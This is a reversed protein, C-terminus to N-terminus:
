SLQGLLRVLDQQRGVGTKRFVSKLHTRVTGGTIGLCAAVSELSHGAALGAAIKAETGTLGYLAKLACADPALRRAPDYAVAPVRPRFGSLDAEGPELPAVFLALPLRGSAREVRLWGGSGAADPAAALAVLRDLNPRQAVRPCALIGHESMLGDCEALMAEGARNAFLIHGYQDLAFVAQPLEQLLALGFRWRASLGGISEALQIAQAVHPAILNFAEIDAKQAHGQRRSRQLSFSLHHLTTEPLRAGIYYRLGHRGLWDYVPDRDMEAESLILADYHVPVEPHAIAHAVRKCVPMHDRAYEACQEITFRGAYALGPVNPTKPVLDIVAGASGAYDEIAHLAQSWLSPDAAAAYIQRITASFREVSMGGGLDPRAPM